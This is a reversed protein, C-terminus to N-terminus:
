DAYSTTARPRVDSTCGAADAMVGGAAAADIIMEYLTARSGNTALKPAHGRHCACLFGGAAGASSKRERM